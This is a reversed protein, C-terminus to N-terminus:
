TDVDGLETVVEEVLAVLTELPEELEEKTVAPFDVVVVLRLMFEGLKDPPLDVVTELREVDVEDRLVPDDVERCGVVKLERLVTELDLGVFTEVENLGLEIVVESLRVLEDTGNDVAVRDPDEADDGDNVVVEGCPVDLVFELLRLEDVDGVPTLVEVVLWVVNGAIELGEREVVDMREVAVVEDRMLEEVGSEVLIDDVEVPTLVDNDVEGDDAVTEKVPIALVRAPGPVRVLLLVDLLRELTATDAVVWLEGELERVCVLELLERGAEVERVVGLVLVFEM